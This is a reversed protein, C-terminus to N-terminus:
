KKHREADMDMELRSDCISGAYWGDEWKMIIFLVYAIICLAAVFIGVAIGAFFFVWELM